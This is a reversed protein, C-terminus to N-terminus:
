YENGHGGNSLIFMVVLTIVLLILLGPLLDIIINHLQDKGYVSYVYDIEVKSRDLLDNLYVFLGTNDDLSYDTGEILSINIDDGNWTAGSIDGSNSKNTIDYATSGIDEDLNFTGILTSAAWETINISWHEEDATYNDNGDYTVNFYYSGVTLNRTFVLPSAGSGLLINNLYININGVGENLTGNLYTNLATLNDTLYNSRANDIYAYVEGAEKGVTLTFTDISSNVSYNQGGTSNYVYNYVGVGLTTADPNSVEINDKYLKYIVDSDNNNTENGFVDGVVGYDIPTTGTISGNLIAKNITITFDDYASTYNVNGVTSYNASITGAAYVGNTINLTCSLQAPCGSGSFDTATGYTIPTTGTLSLTPTAKNVTYTGNVSDNQNGLSDNAFWYYTYTGASLNTVTANYVNGSAYTSYNIGGIEFLVVSIANVDLVTANFEYIQTQSYTAPDSPYETLTTINPPDAEVFTVNVFWTESCRTYNGSGEYVATINYLGTANFDTLNAIPSTVNAVLDGNNFLTINAGTDGTIMTANLWINTNNLITINARSNNLYTYISCAAKDITFDSTNAAATFNTTASMNCYYTYTGAALTVDEGNETATVDVGDRYLVVTGEGELIICSVNLTTGYTQPSASDFTLNTQGIAQNVTYTGNVSDNQNGLSDNAFWYYTYTGAALDIVTANYVDDTASTSYNVGDFEFLVIYIASADLVTANFRYYAGLSYTAPDAPAETLTTVNPSLTDVSFTVSDSDINNSSDNTWVYYTNSGEVPSISVNLDTCTVSTNSDGNTNSYWCYEELDGGITWNLTAPAASYTTATPYTITIDLSPGADTYTVSLYPRLVINAEYEKSYLGLDDTLSPTGSIITSNLVFSLNNTLNDISSQLMEKISWTYNINTPSSSNIMLSDESTFNMQYETTPRKSFIMTGETWEEGSINYNPFPYIHHITINFSEGEDINNWLPVLTLNAEVITKENLISINFRFYSHTINGGIRLSQDTGYNNDIDRFVYTDDLNESDADQLIITTSNHGFELVSGINFNYTKTEEQNLLWFSIEEELSKDMKEKYDKIGKSSKKGDLVDKKFEEEKTKNKNWIRVPIDEAFIKIGRPNLTVTISTYNFDVVEVPFEEDNEMIVVEIGSGILSRADEVRKWQNDEYVNRVGSYLTKTCKDGECFTDTTSTYEESAGVVNVALVGVVLVIVWISLTSRLTATSKNKDVMLM